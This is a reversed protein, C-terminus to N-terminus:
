KLDPPEGRVGKISRKKEKKHQPTGGGFCGKGEINKLYPPEGGFRGKGEKKKPRTTGGRVEWM